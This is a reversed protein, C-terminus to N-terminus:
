FGVVDGSQRGLLEPARHSGIGELLARHAERGLGVAKLRSAAGRAAEGERSGSECRARAADCLRPHRRPRSRKGHDVFHYYSTTYATYLSLHAVIVVCTSIQSAVRAERATLMSAACPLGRNKQVDQLGSGGTCETAGGGELSLPNCALRQWASWCRPASARRASRVDNHRPTRPEQTYQRWGPTM